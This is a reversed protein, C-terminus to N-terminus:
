IISLSLFLLLNDDNKVALKVCAKFKKLGLKQTKQDCFRPLISSYM